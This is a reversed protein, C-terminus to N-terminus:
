TSLRFDIWVQLDLQRGRLIEPAAPYSAQRVARIAADDLVRSLSSQVVQVGDVAGDRYNFRVQARGERRQRVAMAPMTAAARVAQVIRGRLQALAPGPDPARIPPAAQAAEGTAGPRMARAASPALSSAVSRTVARQHPVASARPVFLLEPPALAAVPPAPALDAHAITAVLPAQPAAMPGSAAAQAAAAVVLAYGSQEAPPHLPSVVIRLLAALVAGHAAVALAVALARREPRRHPSATRDLHPPLSVTLLLM